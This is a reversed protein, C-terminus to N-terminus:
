YTITKRQELILMKHKKQVVELGRGLEEAIERYCIGKSRMDFLIETEENRWEVHVNNRKVKLFVLRGDIAKM